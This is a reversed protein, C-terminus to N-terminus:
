NYNEAIKAVRTSFSKLADQKGTEDLTRDTKIKPCFGTILYNVIESTAAKPHRAKITAVATSIDNESGAGLREGAIAIQKPSEGLTSGANRGEPLPCQLKTQPHSCSTVLGILCLQFLYPAVLRKM